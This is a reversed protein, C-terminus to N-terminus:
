KKINTYSRLIIAKADKKAKCKHGRHQESKKFLQWKGPQQCQIYIQDGEICDNPKRRCNKFEM